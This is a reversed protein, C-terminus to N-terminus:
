PRRGRMAVETEHGARRLFLSLSRAADVNDDVVLIRLTRHRDEVAVEARSAVSQPAPENGLPLRVVFESGQGLGDSIAVITGGHLEVLTRTLTLGIGLGGQTRDLSHDAQTFLDFVRPLLGPDIGIGNDKVRVEAEDDM